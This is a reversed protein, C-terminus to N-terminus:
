PGHTRLVPSRYGALEGPFGAEWQRATLCFNCIDSCSSEQSSIQYQKSRLERDSLRHQLKPTPAPKPQLAISFPINEAPNLPAQEKASYISSGTLYLHHADEKPWRSGTGSDAAERVLPPVIPPPKSTNPHQQHCSHSYFIPIIATRYQQTCYLTLGSDGSLLRHYSVLLAGTWHQSLQESNIVLGILAQIWSKEGCCAWRERQVYCSRKPQFCILRIM